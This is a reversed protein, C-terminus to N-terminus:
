LSRRLLDLAAHATFARVRERDFGFRFREVVVDAGAGALAIFVTGVPLERTGGTPGAIGTTALSVDAGFRERAGVAMARAVVESVAGTTALAERSVGLTLAKVEDTYTVAGGKFADSAGPIDTLLKAVLGGTVSEATALTRQGAKLKELVVGPLTEEDAGFVYRGLVARSEEEARRLVERASAEDPGEALLKLHNEPLHTRYGFTVQPHKAAVPEILADLHSEPLAVTKLLRLLRVARNPRAAEIRPLVEHEVLHRYERPVGPVFFCRAKGIRLNFMPAVGVANEVVEAGRPVMAQRQNNPTLKLGRSKFREEMSALTPAHLELPVGACDAAAEATVDDATPGLGGSVLVIDAREAAARLAESITAKVDGVTVAREVRLGLRNLLQNQFFQSNTDVTLGTLLEDGTVLSEIRM